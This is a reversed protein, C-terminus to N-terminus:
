VLATMLQNVSAFSTCPLTALHYTKVGFIGMTIIKFAKANAHVFKTYKM